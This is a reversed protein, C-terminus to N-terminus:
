KLTASSYDNKIWKECIKAGIVANEAYADAGLEKAVEETLAAGGVIIKLRNRLSAKEIADITNKIEPITTTLLASLGLIDTSTDRIREVFEEPPVDVGLDHTEFGRAVLLSKVINKGIDHLDGKVTGIVVTGLKKGPNKELYPELVKMGEKMTEGAMILESLFLEGKEYQQGIISMGRSMGKTVVELPSVGADIAEQAVQGIENVRFEVICERLRSFLEERDIM